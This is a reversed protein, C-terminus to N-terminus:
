RKKKPKTDQLSEEEEVDQETKEELPTRAKLASAKGARVGSRPSPRSKPSVKAVKNKGRPTAKIPSSRKHPSGTKRRTVTGRRVPRSEEESSSSQQEFSADSSSAISPTDESAFSEDAQDGSRLEDEDAEVDTDESEDEDGPEGEVEEGDIAEASEEDEESESEWAWRKTDGGLRLDGEGEEEEVEVVADRADDQRMSRSLGGDERDSLSPRERRIRPIATGAPRPATPSQPDAAYGM